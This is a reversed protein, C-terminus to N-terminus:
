KSGDFTPDKFIENPIFYSTSDLSNVKRHKQNENMFFFTKSDVRILFQSHDKNVQKYLRIYTISHLSTIIRGVVKTM